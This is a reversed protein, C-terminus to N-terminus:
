THAHAPSSSQKCVASRAAVVLPRATPVTWRRAEGPHVIPTGGGYALARKQWAEWRNSAGRPAKGRDAAGWPLQDEAEDLHEGSVGGRASGRACPEHGLGPAQRQGPQEVGGAPHELLPFIDRGLGVHCLHQQGLLGCGLPTAPLGRLAWSILQRV